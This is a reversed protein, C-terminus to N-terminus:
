REVTAVIGSVLGVLYPQEPTPPHRLISRAQRVNGDIDVVFRFGEIAVFLADEGDNDMIFSVRHVKELKTLTSRLATASDRICM